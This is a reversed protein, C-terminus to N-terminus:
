QEYGLSLAFSLTKPVPRIYHCFHRMYFNFKTRRNGPETKIFRREIHDIERERHLKAICQSFDFKTRVNGDDDYLSARPRKGGPYVDFSMQRLLNHLHQRAEM